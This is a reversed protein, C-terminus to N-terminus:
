VFIQAANHSFRIKAYAFVFSCILQATVACSILVKTKQQVSLVVGRRRLDSIELKYGDETAAYVLKHRVQDSVWFVWKRADRSM